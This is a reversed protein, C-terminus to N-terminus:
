TGYHAAACGCDCGSGCHGHLERRLVAEPWTSGFGCDLCVSLGFSADNSLVIRAQRCVSAFYMKQTKVQQSVVCSLQNKQPRFFYAVVQVLVPM